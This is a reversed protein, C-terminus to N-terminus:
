ETQLKDFRCVKDVSQKINAVRNWAWDLFFEMTCGADSYKGDSWHLLCTKLFDVLHHDLAVTLLSSRQQGVDRVEFSSEPPVLGAVVCVSYLKAPEVLNDKGVSRLELLVKRQLGLHAAHVIGFDLLCVLSFALSSPYFHQEVNMVSKYRSVSSLDIRCDLVNATEDDVLLTEDLACVSFYSCQSSSEIVVDNPMQAQYWANLDFIGLFFRSDEEGQSQNKDRIVEWLFTCLGLNIQCDEIESMDKRGAHGAHHGPASLPLTSGGLFLSGKVQHEAAADLHHLFRQQCSMLGSYLVGTDNEDRSQFALAHLAISALNALGEKEEESDLDNEGRLAWVYVFNRPDNEPEQFCFGIVPLAESVYPSSYELSVPCGRSGVASVNWFQWAGFNYGVLLGGIQPVFCLGSVIVGSDPFHVAEGSATDTFSFVKSRKKAPKLEHLPVCLHQGRQMAKTRQQAVKQAGGALTTFCPQCPSSEDSVELDDDISCDVLYVHGEQTGVAILGSMLLLEECLYRPASSPSALCQLSTIRNSLNLCRIVRSSFINFLCVRGDSLGICLFRGDLSREGSRTSMDICSTIECDLASSSTAENKGSKSRQQYDQNSSSSFTWAAVREGTNPNLVEVHPGSYVVSILCDESVFGKLLSSSQVAADKLQSSVPAPFKLPWSGGGM